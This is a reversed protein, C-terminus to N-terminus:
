TGRLVSSKSILLSSFTFRKVALPRSGKQQTLFGSNWGSESGARHRMNGKIRKPTYSWLSCTDSEISTLNQIEQRQISVLFFYNEQRELHCCKQENATQQSVYHDLMSFFFQWQHAYSSRQFM